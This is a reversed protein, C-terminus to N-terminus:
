TLKGTVVIIIIIFNVIAEEALIKIEPITEVTSDTIPETCETSIKLMDMTMAIIIVVMAKTLTIIMGMTM